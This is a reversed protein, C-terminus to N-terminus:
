KNKSSKRLLNLYGVDLTYATRRIEDILAIVWKNAFEHSVTGTLIELDNVKLTIAEKGDERKSITIEEM